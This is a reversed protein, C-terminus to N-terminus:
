IHKKRDFEDYIDGVLEELIDELTIVGDFKGKENEVIAMHIRNKRMWDFVETIEEDNKVSAHERMLDKVKGEEQKLLDKSYLIGKIEEFDEGVVPTRTFKHERVKREAENIPIDPHLTFIKDKPIKVTRVTLDGFWFVRHLIDREIEKISGEEELISALKKIDGERVRMSEERTKGGFFRTIVDSVKELGKVIPALVVSLYYIMKANNQSFSKRNKIAFGKPSIEGFVLLFFTLVGIAISVGLDGLAKYALRTALASATVNILNNGILITVITRDMNSKLKEILEVNEDEDIRMQALDSKSLSTLAIESGSFRGSLYILVILALINLVIILFNM